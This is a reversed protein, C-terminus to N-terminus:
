DIYLNKGNEKLLEFRDFLEGTATFSRYTLRDGDISIHQFLQIREGKKAQTAGYEDWGSKNVSYMKGGSVSVVYVPGIINGGHNENKVVVPKEYIAGRAYSHDHGQLALDINYEEFIPQWLSRIEPNDRGTSASFVPHHYTVVTWKKDNSKLIERLWKAQRKIAVNSNLAIIKLDPYDIYYCTKELGRPGNKPFGFQANWQVSLVEDQSYVSGDLYRYEHNGPVAIAPIESHIFSGAAFWENWDIDEHGKDVLDGAHIFFDADPATKYANRIVRSWLELIYNQADGM